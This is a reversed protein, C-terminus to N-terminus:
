SMEQWPDGNVWNVPVADIIRVKPLIERIRNRYFHQTSFIPNMELTVDRLAPLRNLYAIETWNSIQNDYLSLKTLRHLGNIHEIKKLLNWRLTLMELNPILEFNAVSLLRRRTLDVEKANSDVDIEIDEKVVNGSGDNSRVVTCSLQIM